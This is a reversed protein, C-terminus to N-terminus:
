WGTQYGVCSSGPAGTASGDSASYTVDDFVSSLLGDAQIASMDPAYSGHKARYAESAVAVTAVDARCASETGRDNIEDVAHGFAVAWAICVGLGVISVTLGAIALGKNVAHHKLAKNLGVASFVIGLIVLPWAIIGIVPVFAFLLGVLGVVFGATALGNSSRISSPPQAVPHQYLESHQWQGGPQATPPTNGPAVDTM